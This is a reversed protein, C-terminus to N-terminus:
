KLLLTKKMRKGRKRESESMVRKYASARRFHEDLQRIKRSSFGPWNSVNYPSSGRGFNTSQRQGVWVGANTFPENQLTSETVEGMRLTYTSYDEMLNQVLYSHIKLEESKHFTEGNLNPTGGKECVLRYHLPRLPPLPGTSARDKPIVGMCLLLMDSSGQRHGKGPILANFVSGGRRIVTKQKTKKKLTRKGSGIHVAVKTRPSFVNNKQLDGRGRFHELNKQSM